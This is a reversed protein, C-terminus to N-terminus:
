KAVSTRQFTSHSAIYFAPEAVGGLAPPSVSNILMKAGLVRLDKSSLTFAISFAVHYCCSHRNNLPVVSTSRCKRQGMEVNTPGDGRENAWRCKRQGMQVKTPLVMSAQVSCNQMGFPLQGKGMARDVRSGQARKQSQTMERSSETLQM